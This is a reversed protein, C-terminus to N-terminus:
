ARRGACPRRADRSPPNGSLPPPPVLISAVGRAPHPRRRARGRALTGLGLAVLALTGPEPVLTFAFAVSSEHVNWERTMATASGSIAYLVGEELTDSLTFAGNRPSRVITRAQNFSLDTALIEVTAQSATGSLEFRTDASVQFFTNFQASGIGFACTFRCTVFAAQASGSFTITETGLTSTQRVYVSYTGSSQSWPTTFAAPPALTVFDVPDCGNSYGCSWVAHGNERRDEVYLISTAGAVSPFLL